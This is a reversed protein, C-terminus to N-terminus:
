RGRNQKAYFERNIRNQEANSIAGSGGVRRAHQEPVARTGSPPLPRGYSDRTQAASRQDAYFTKNRANIAAPSETRGFGGIPRSWGRVGPHISADGTGRRARVKADVGETARRVARLAVEPNMNNQGRPSGVSARFNALETFIESLDVTWAEGRTDAGLAAAANAALFDRQLKVIEEGVWRQGLDLGRPAEEASLLGTTFPTNLEFKQVLADLRPKLSGEWVSGLALLKGPDVASLVTDRTRGRFDGPSDQMRVNRIFKM